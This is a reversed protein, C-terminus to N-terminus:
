RGARIQRIQSVPDGLFPLCANEKREAERQEETEQRKIQLYANNISIDGSRLRQKMEDTAKAELKKIKAITDHSVGAAKSLEERTDIASKEAKASNQM